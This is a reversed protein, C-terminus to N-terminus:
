KNEGESQYNRYQNIIKLFSDDLEVLVTIDEGAVDLVLYYSKQPFINNCFNFNKFNKEYKAKPSTDKEKKDISIIDAFEIAGTLTSKKGTIKTIKLLKNEDDAEYIFRTLSYRAIIQIALAVSVAAIFQMIFDPVPTNLQTALISVFFVGLLLIPLTIHLKGEKPPSFTHM